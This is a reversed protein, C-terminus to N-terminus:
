RYLKCCHHVGKWLRVSDRYDPLYLVDQLFQVHTVRQGSYSYEDHGQQRPLHLPDRFNNPEQIDRFAIEDLTM